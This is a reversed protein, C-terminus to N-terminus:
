KLEKIVDNVKEYFENLEKLNKVFKNLDQYQNALKDLRLAQDITLQSALAQKIALIIDTAGSNLASQGEYWIRLNLDGWAEGLASYDALAMETGVAPGLITAVSALQMTRNDNEGQAWRNYMKLSSLYHESEGGQVLLQASHLRSWYLTQDKDWQKQDQATWTPWYIFNITSPKDPAPANITPINCTKCNKPYYGVVTVPPLEVYKPKPKPRPKPKPKKAFNNAGAVDTADSADSGEDMADDASLGLPDNFKNPCDFAYSYSSWNKFFESFPDIQMFRGLQPDYGRFGAEYMELGSGNSFEKNALETGDDYRYKNEAYNSKLAMDSIGAMTLGFPYYHTEELLPGRHDQISVNDFYVPQPSENSVYIYVYGNKAISVPTNATIAVSPNGSAIVPVQTVGGTIYNFRDDFLAWNLFAKPSTNVYQGDKYSLFTPLNSTLINDISPQEALLRESSVAVSGSALAPVLSTLLSPGTPSQVPTNYWCYTSATITDGAMVKLIIM